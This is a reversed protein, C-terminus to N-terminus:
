MFFIIWIIGIIAFHIPYFWYFLNKFKTLGIKGNYFLIFVCPLATFLFYLSPLFITNYYNSIYYREIFQVLAFLFVVFMQLTKKKCLYLIFILLVGLTGYDTKTIFSIYTTVVVVSIAIKNFKTIKVKEYLYVTLVGLYLTFLVNRNEYYFFRELGFFSLLVNSNLLLFPIETAVAVILIRNMYKKMNRTHRCGEAILFVYLPFSIRGIIRFAEFYMKNDWTSEGLYGIHDLVMTLLAIIKIIFTNM